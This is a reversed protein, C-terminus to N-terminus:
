ASRARGPAPGWRRALRYMRHEGYKKPLPMRGVYESEFGATDTTELIAAFPETVYVAGPPAVPEVRAARSVQTGFYSAVGRIPDWGKFVPGHHLGIRLEPAFRSERRMRAAEEQISLALGAAAEIEDIVLFFADGWTNRYLVQGAFGDIVRGIAAMYDSWFGPLQSEPISSFRYVDAFLFARVERHPATGTDPAPAAAAPAAEPERGGIEVTVCDTCLRRARTRALGRAILEAYAILQPDPWDGDATASTVTAASALCHRRRAVEAAPSRDAFFSLYDQEAFPLVLHLEVGAALAQEAMALSGTSWLTGVAFGVAERRLTASVAAAAEAEEDAAVEGARLHAVKPPALIDLLDHSRAPDPDTEGLLAALQRRTSSLAGYDAGALERARRLADAAEEWRGLVALAEARTAAPWYSEPEHLLGDDLLTSAIRGADQRQGALASLTAANIGPFPDRSKRFVRHYARAAQALLPGRREPPAALAADKRIRAWLALSDVDGLRNLRLARYQTAAKATAGARALALVSLYRLRPDDVGAELCARAKDYAGILEARRLDQEIEELTAPTM